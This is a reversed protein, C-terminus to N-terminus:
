KLKHVLKEKESSNLFSMRNINNEDANILNVENVKGKVLKDM